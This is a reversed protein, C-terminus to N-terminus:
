PVVVTDGPKLEVNQKVNRGIAVERYNFRMTVQKGSDNRLITINKSDAYELLGGAMAILQLVTTAGGLPYAGIKAVQGTIFVKRSNIAKVVVTVTPEEVFRSAAESVKLRLQEPTLGAAKIDNILPLSIMADPRVTVESSMEKERWFVIALVDDIGIVYDSPTEIGGLETPTPPKATTAAPAPVQAATPAASPAPAASQAAAALSAAALSVTFGVCLALGAVLTALRSRHSPWRAATAISAGIPLEPEGQAMTLLPRRCAGAAFRTSGSREM